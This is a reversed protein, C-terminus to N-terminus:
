RLIINVMLFVVQGRKRVYLEPRRFRFPDWNNTKNEKIAGSVALCLIYLNQSERELKNNNIYFTNSRFPIFISVSRIIVFPRMLGLLVM